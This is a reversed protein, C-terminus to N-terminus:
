AKRRLRPREFYYWAFGYPLFLLYWYVVRSKERRFWERIMWLTGLPHGAFFAFVLNRQAETEFAWAGHM